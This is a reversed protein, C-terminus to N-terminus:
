YGRLRRRASHRRLAVVLCIIAAVLVSGFPCLLAGLVGLVLRGASAYPGVALQSADGGAQCVLRYRGTRDATVDYAAYWSGTSNSLHVDSSHRLEIGSSPRVSCSPQNASSATYITRREGSHLALWVPHGASFERFNGTAPRLAFVFLGIGAAIGLVVLVVAAVYWTRHPRIDAPSGYGIM